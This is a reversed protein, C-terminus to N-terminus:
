ILHLAPGESPMQVEYSEDRMASISFRPVPLGLIYPILHIHLVEPLPFPYDTGM